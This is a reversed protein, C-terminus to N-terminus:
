PASRLLDLRFTPMGMRPNRFASRQSTSSLEHEREVKMSVMPAHRADAGLLPSLRPSSRLQQLHGLHRELQRVTLPSASRAASECEATGVSNEHHFVGDVRPDTSPRQSVISSALAPIRSRPLTPRRTVAGVRRAARCLRSQGSRRAARVRNQPLPLFFQLRASSAM